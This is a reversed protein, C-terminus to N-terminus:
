KQGQDGAQQEGQRESGVTQPRQQQDAHRQGVPHLGAGPRGVQGTMLALSILCRSNDTGHIHQSIGMGWFIMGARAGAFTRAVDRLVEADVGCLDAMDEPAFGALHTKMEDFGETMADIYQRDYLEEEVITHMIANLMAVDAGPRFQLMHSAHRKLGQGRPDMVILKGGAQQVQRVDQVSLVTGAGILAVDGFAQAMIRISDFPQPSNLPVEIKTIGTDILAACIDHAEDPHIGRLIAVINRTM